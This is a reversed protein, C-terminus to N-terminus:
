GEDTNGGGFRQRAIEKLMSMTKEEKEKMGAVRAEREAKRARLIEEKRLERENKKRENEKRMRKIEGLSDEDGMVDADRVEMDGGGDKASAFARNSEAMERKKELQRERTGPEARPAIEDLRERQVKRDVARSYSLDQRQESRAADADERAQEDRSRLDQLSPITASHSHGDKPVHGQSIRASDPLTPGYDDDDDGDDEDHTRPENYRNDM